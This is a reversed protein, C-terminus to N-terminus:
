ELNIVSMLGGLYDSNRLTCDPQHDDRVPKLERLIERSQLTNLSNPFNVVYRIVENSRENPFTLHVPRHSAIASQVNPGTVGIESMWQLGPRVSIGDRPNIDRNLHVMEIISRREENLTGIEAIERGASRRSGLDLGSHRRAPRADPRMDRRISPADAAPSRRRRRLVGVSSFDAATARPTLPSNPVSGRTLAPPPEWERRAAAVTRFLLAVKHPAVSYIRARCADMYERTGNSHLLARSHTRFAINSSGARATRSRDLPPRIYRKRFFVPDRVRMGLTAGRCEARERCELAFAWRTGHRSLLRRKEADIENTTTSRFELLSFNSVSSPRPFGSSRAAAPTHRARWECNAERAYLRAASNVGRRNRAFATVHCRTGTTAGPKERRNKKAAEGARPASTRRRAREGPTRKSQVNCGSRRYDVIIAAAIAAGPRVRGRNCDSALRRAGTEVNFRRSVAARNIIIIIPRQVGAAGAGDPCAVAGRSEKLRSGCEAPSRPEFGRARSERPDTRRRTGDRFSSSLALFDCCADDSRCLRNGRSLVAVLPGSVACAPVAGITSRTTRVKVRPDALFEGTVAAAEALLVRRWAWRETIFGTINRSKAPISSLVEGKTTRFDTFYQFDSFDRIGRGKIYTTQLGTTSTDNVFNNSSRSNDKGNYERLPLKALSIWRRVLTGTSASSRSSHQGLGNPDILLLPSLSTTM